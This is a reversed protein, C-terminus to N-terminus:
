LYVRCSLQQHGLPSHARRWRTCLPLLATCPAPWPAPTHGSSSVNGAGGGVVSRDACQWTESPFYTKIQNHFHKSLLCLALKPSCIDCKAISSSYLPLISIGHPRIPLLIFDLLILWKVMTGYVHFRDQNCSTTQLLHQGLTSHAGSHLVDGGQPVPEPGVKAGVEPQLVADRVGVDVEPHVIGHREVGQSVKPVYFKDRHCLIQIQYEMIIYKMSFYM